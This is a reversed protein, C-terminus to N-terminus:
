AKKTPRRARARSKTAAAKRSGAAKAKAGAKSARPPPVIVTLLVISEPATAGEALTQVIGHYAGSPADSPLLVRLAVPARSARRVDVSHTKEADNRVQTGDPGSLPGVHVKVTGADGGTRNVVYLVRHGDVPQGPGARTATIRLERLRARLRAPILRGSPPTRSM